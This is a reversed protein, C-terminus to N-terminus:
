EPEEDSMHFDSSYELMMHHYNVEIDSLVRNNNEIKNHCWQLHLIKSKFNAYLRERRKNTFCSNM